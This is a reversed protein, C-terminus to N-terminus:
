VFIMMDHNYYAYQAVLKAAYGKGRVANVNAEQDDFLLTCNPTSNTHAMIIGM